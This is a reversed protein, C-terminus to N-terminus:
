AQRHLSVPCLPRAPFADLLHVHAAAAQIPIGYDDEHARQASDALLLEHRSVRPVQWTRWVHGLPSGWRSTAYRARWGYPCLISAQKGM